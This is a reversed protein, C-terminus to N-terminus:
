DLVKNYEDIAEELNKYEEVVTKHKAKCKHFKSATDTVVFLIEAKTGTKFKELEGCDERAQESVTPLQVKKPQTSFPCGMMM